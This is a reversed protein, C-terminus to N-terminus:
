QETMECESRMDSGVIHVSRARGAVQQESKVGEEEQEM